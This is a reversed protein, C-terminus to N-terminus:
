LNVFTHIVDKWEPRHNDNVTMAVCLDTKNDTLKFLFVYYCTLFLAPLPISTTSAYDRIVKALHDTLTFSITYISTIEQHPTEKQHNWDYDFMMEHWFHSTVKQQEDNIDEIIENPLFLSLDCISQKTSNPTISSFLQEVILQFRQAMNVITNSDFLDTSAILEARLASTEITYELALSMDFMSMVNTPTGILTTNNNLRSISWPDILSTKDLQISKMSLEDLTFMTQILNQGYIQGMPIQEILFQYPLHFHMRAEFLFNSVKGLVQEFTEQPNVRIRMPLTNAFMGVLHQLEPRYRNAHVIGVLLDRQGGTLKFLFIYYMTLCVQYLTTNLDSAYKVLQEVIHREFRIEISLGQGTRISEPPLKRDFPLNMQKRINYDLLVQRWYTKASTMDM